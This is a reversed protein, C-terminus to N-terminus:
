RHSAIPRLVDLVVTRHQDDASGYPLYTVTVTAHEVTGQAIGGDSGLSVNVVSSIQYTMPNGGTSGEAGQTQALLVEAPNVGLQWLRAIAEAYRVAAAQGRTLEEQQTMSMGLAAAAGLAAAILGSAALVEVLTYGATSLSSHLRRSHMVNVM